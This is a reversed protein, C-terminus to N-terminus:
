KRKFFDGGVCLHDAVLQHHACAQDAPECGTQIAPQRQPEPNQLSDLPDYALFHIAGASEFQQHGAYLGRFEPLFRLAPAFLAGLQQPELVPMPAFEANARGMLFTNGIDRSPFQLTIALQRNIVVLNM